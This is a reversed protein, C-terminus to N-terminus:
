EVCKNTGLLKNCFIEFENISTLYIQNSEQKNNVINKLKDIFDKKDNNKFTKVGVGRDVVDSALVPVGSSLAELISVSNGDFNTPRIYVDVNSLLKM